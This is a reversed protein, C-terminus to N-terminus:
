MVGVRTWTVWRGAAAVGSSSDTIPTPMITPAMAPPQSASRAWVAAMKAMSPQLARTSPPKARAACLTQLTVGFRNRTPQQMATTGARCVRSM